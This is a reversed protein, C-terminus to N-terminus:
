EMHKRNTKLCVSSFWETCSCPHGNQATMKEASEKTHSSQIKFDVVAQNSFNDTSYMWEHMNWTCSVVNWIFITKLLTKNEVSTCLGKYNYACRKACPWIHTANLVCLNFCSNVHDRAVGNKQRQLWLPQSNMAAATKTMWLWQTLLVTLYRSWILWIESLVILRCVHMIDKSALKSNFSWSRLSNTHSVKCSLITWGKSAVLISVVM